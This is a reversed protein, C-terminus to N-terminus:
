GCLGVIGFLLIGAGSVVNLMQMGRGVTVVRGLLAGGLALVIQICLSGMFLGVAAVARTATSADPPLQGIFALFAIVTLPNAVTLAYTTFLPALGQRAEKPTEAMGLTPPHPRVASWMLWLGFAILILAAVTHVQATHVTLLPAIATGVSLAITAYTLDALAAGCASALGARFGGTAAYRIILLAIPGIAIALTVGFVLARIFIM